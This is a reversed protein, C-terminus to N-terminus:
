TEEKDSRMVSERHRGIKGIIFAEVEQLSVIKERIVVLRADLFEITQEESPPSERYARLLSVIEKLSFGLRQAGRIHEITVIVSADYDRYTRSGARRATSAFFGMEEYHRIGDKSLGVIRAIESILMYICKVIPYSSM